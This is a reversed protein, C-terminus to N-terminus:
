FEPPRPGSKRESPRQFMALILCALGINIFMDALNFIWPFYILRVDLFDIVHGLVFRDIGNGLAGSLILGYGVQEWRILRPGFWALAMLGISVGLSLWRLWIAGQFWSFAAGYNIEYTFHLVGPLFAVSQHLTFTKVVWIKTIRDLALGIIAVLWFYRNKLLM